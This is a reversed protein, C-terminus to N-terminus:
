HPADIVHSVYRRFDEYNTLGLKNMAETVNVFLYFAAPPSHCHFGPVQVCVVRVSTLSEHQVIPSEDIIHAWSVKSIAEVLLDRREQLKRVIEATYDEGEKSLCAIGAWQIFHTTCSEDNTNLKNILNIIWQPGVAAGLRWGTMSWSKSYTYLIVTREFMGPLSVISKGKVNDYIINFYAEDSLVLLDHEVAIKAIEAMEVDSSAIGTSLLHTCSRSPCSGGLVLVKKSLNSRASTKGMPNQYNNYILIKTRSTIQKRLGDLDLGFGDDREIFTYPKLVGGLYQIQSEYIPYGPTPYLVEDGEEMVSALFKAIVPKGGSQISINAPGYTVGRQASMVEALRQRLPLIGAGACYGTKKEKIAKNMEAVVFGPSAFNLDGIHFPYVKKGEEAVKAAELSVAFATETGLKSMRSAGKHKQAQVDMKM